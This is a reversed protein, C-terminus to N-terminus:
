LDYAKRFTKNAMILHKRWNILYGSRKNRVYFTISMIGVSMEVLESVVEM